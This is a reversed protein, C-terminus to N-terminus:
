FIMICRLIIMEWPLLYFDHNKKQTLKVIERDINETEYVTGPRGCEGGGILMFRGMKM